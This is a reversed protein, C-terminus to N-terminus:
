TEQIPSFYREITRIYRQRKKSAEIKLREYETLIRQLLPIINEKKEKEDAEFLPPALYKKRTFPNQIITGTLVKSWEQYPIKLDQILKYAQNGLNIITGKTLEIYSVKHNSM